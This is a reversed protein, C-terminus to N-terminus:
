NEGYFDEKKEAYLAINAAYQLAASQTRFEKGNLVWINGKKTPILFDAM